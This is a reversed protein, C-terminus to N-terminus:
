GFNVFPSEINAPERDGVERSMTDDIEKFSLMIM